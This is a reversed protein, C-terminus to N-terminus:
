SHQAADVVNYTDFISCVHRWLSLRDQLGNSGGNIRISIKTIADIDALSNLGRTSWFWAAGMAAGNKTEMLLVVDELSIQLVDALSQYNSKFTLQILGRGRYAYGDGSTEDGNGYRNAYVRNAIREPHNAYYAVNSHNFHSSFATLLGSASYNLNEELCKFYQSEIMLQPLFAELRKKTNIAFHDTATALSQSWSVGDISPMLSSLLRPQIIM